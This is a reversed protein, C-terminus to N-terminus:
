AEDAHALRPPKQIWFVYMGSFTEARDQEFAAWNELNAAAEDKPHRQRYARSVTDELEFGIFNLHQEKLFAGIQELTVGQEQVHFLLDRCAGISFFDEAELVSKLGVPNEDLLEQRFARIEEASGTIGRARLRARLATIERRAAASYLGLRM